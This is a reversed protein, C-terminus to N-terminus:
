SQDSAAALAPDPEGGAENADVAARFRGFLTDMLAWDPDSGHILERGRRVVLPARGRPAALSPLAHDAMEVLLMLPALRNRAGAAWTANAAHLEATPQGSARAQIVQWTRDRLESLDPPDQEYDGTEASTSRDPEGERRRCWVTHTAPLSHWRTTSEKVVDFGLSDIIALASTFAFFRVSTYGALGSLAQHLRARTARGDRAAIARELELPAYGETMESYILWTGEAAVEALRALLARRSRANHSMLNCLVLDFPEPGATGPRECNGHKFVVRDVGKWRALLRARLVLPLLSDVALVREFHGALGFSVYGAGSGADYAADSRLDTCPELHEALFAYSENIRTWAYDGVIWRAAWERRRSQWGAVSRAMWQARREASETAADRVAPAGDDRAQRQRATSLGPTVTRRREFAKMLRREYSLRLRRVPEGVANRARFRALERQWDPISSELNEQFATQLRGYLALDLENYRAVTELDQASYAAAERTGNEPTHWLGHWGLRERMLLLTEEFRETLGWVPFHNAVHSQALELVDTPQEDFPVDTRGALARCQGNCLDSWVGSEIMDSVSLRLATEHCAHGPHERAYRYHSLVREVPDRVLTFYASAPLHEHVGFPAHGAVFRIRERAFAPMSDLATVSGVPDDSDVM